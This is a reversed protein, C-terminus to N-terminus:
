ATMWEQLSTKMPSGAKLRGVEEVGVVMRDNDGGTIIGSFM